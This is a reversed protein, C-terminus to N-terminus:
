RASRGRGSQASEKRAKGSKSCAMREGRLVRFIGKGHEHEEGCDASKGVWSSRMERVDIATWQDLMLHGRSDAFIRLKALLLRYKKKTNPEAHEEFEATFANIARDITIREPGTEVKAEPPSPPRECGLKRPDGLTRCRIECKGMGM